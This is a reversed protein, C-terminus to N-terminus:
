ADRNHPATQLRKLLGSLQGREEASLSDGVFSSEVEAVIIKLREYQRKGAATLRLSHSRSDTPSKSRSVFGRLQLEKVISTVQAADVTLATALAGPTVGPNRAILSMAGVHNLQFGTGAALRAFHQKYALQVRRLTFGLSHPLTGFALGADPVAKTPIPQAAAGDAKTRPQM